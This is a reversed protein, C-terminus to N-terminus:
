IRMRAEVEKIFEEDVTKSFAARLGNLVSQRATEWGLGVDQMITLDSLHRNPLCIVSTVKVLHLLEATPSSQHQLDGSLLLNDCSLSYAM